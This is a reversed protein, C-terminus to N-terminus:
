KGLNGNSEKAYGHTNNVILYLTRVNNPTVYDIHYM